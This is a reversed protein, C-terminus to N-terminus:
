SPPLFPFETMGCVFGSTPDRFSSFTPSFTALDNAPFKPPAANATIGPLDIVCGMDNNRLAVDFQLTRNDRVAKWLDDQTAAGDVALTAQFKGFILDAAGQTGQKKYPKINNELGLKWSQIDVLVATGDTNTVRIRKM